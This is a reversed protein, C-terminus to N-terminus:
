DFKTSNFHVADPPTHPSSGRKLRVKYFQFSPERGALRVAGSTKISSQLISISSEMTRNLWASLTKISSQLISICSSRIRGERWTTKISSQLISIPPSCWPRCPRAPTKISSQLISIEETLFSAM